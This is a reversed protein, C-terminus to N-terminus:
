ASDAGNGVPDLAPVPERHDKPVPTPAYDASLCGDAVAQRTFKELLEPATPTDLVLDPILEHLRDFGIQMQKSSVVQRTHLHHLLASAATRDDDSKDIAARVARKVLEHHFLPCDLERVCKEAEDLQRSLLYELVLQDIAVKLEEVPRGDGPGWVREVRSLAHDRSLMRRANEVIDAGLNAVDPNRLYSPPLVEDVVARALFSAVMNRAKPADLQIDDIMEFLREFGKGVDNSSLLDPYADSLLRSVLEREHDRRDLSMNIARKVVEYNYAPSELERICRLAEAVDESLFFEELISVLSKKFGPLTLRAGNLGLPTMSLSDSVLVYSGGDEASDYNPDREDTIAESGAAMSGDDMPDWKGKSGGGLRKGESRGGGAGSNKRTINRKASGEDGTRTDPVPRHSMGSSKSAGSEPAHTVLHSM